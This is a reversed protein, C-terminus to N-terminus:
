YNKVPIRMSKQDSQKKQQQQEEVINVKVEDCQQPYIAAMM